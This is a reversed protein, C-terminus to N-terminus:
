LGDLKICICSTFTNEAVNHNKWSDGGGACQTETKQPGKETM